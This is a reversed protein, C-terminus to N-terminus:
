KGRREQERTTAVRRIREIISKAKYLRKETAKLRRAFTPDTAEADELQGGDMLFCYHWHIAGRTAEELLRLESETVTIKYKKPM